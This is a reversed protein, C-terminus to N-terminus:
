EIATTFTIIKGLGIESDNKQAYAQFHYITNPELDGLKAVFTGDGTLDGRVNNPMSLITGWYFGCNYTNGSTYDEILGNLLAFNASVESAGLTEVTPKASSSSSSGQTFEPLKKCGTVLMLSAIAFLTAIKRM